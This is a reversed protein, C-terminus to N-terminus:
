PVGPPRAHEINGGCDVCQYGHDFCGDLVEVLYGMFTGVEHHRQCYRCERTKAIQRYQRQLKADAGTSM